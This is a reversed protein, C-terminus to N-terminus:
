EIVKLEESQQNNNLQYAKMLGPHSLVNEQGIFDMRYGEPYYERFKEHRDERSGDLIGLDHEMYGEHSCIHGGLYTGDQALLVADYWGPRGGNNFGYIVPLESVPKNKPNYVKYGKREVSQLHEGLYAMAASETTM